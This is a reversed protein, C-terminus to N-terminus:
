CSGKNPYAGLTNSLKATCEYTTYMNGDDSNGGSGTKKAYCTGCGGTNYAWLWFTVDENVLQLGGNGTGYLDWCWNGNDQCKPGQKIVNDSDTSISFTDVGTDFNLEVYGGATIVSDTITVKYDATWVSCMVPKLLVAAVGFFIGKLLM